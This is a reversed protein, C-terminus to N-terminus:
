RYTIFTVVSAEPKGQNAVDKPSTRLNAPLGEPAKNERCRSTGRAGWLSPGSNEGPTLRYASLYDHPAEIPSHSKDRLSLSITALCPTGPDRHLFAWDRLSPRRNLRGALAECQRRTQPYVRPKARLQTVTFRCAFSSDKTRKRESAQSLM